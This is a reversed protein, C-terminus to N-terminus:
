VIKLELQVSEQPDLFVQDIRQASPRSLSDSDTTAVVPPVSANAASRSGTWAALFLLLDSSDVDEDADLDGEDATRGGSNPELNGTWNAIFALLDGSDVDGDHDLDGAIPRRLVLDITTDNFVVDIMLDNNLRMQDVAFRGSIGNLGNAVTVRRSAGPVPGTYDGVLNVTFSATESSIHLEYASM